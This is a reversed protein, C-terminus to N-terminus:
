TEITRGFILEIGNREAEEKLKELADKSVNGAALFAYKVKRGFARQVLDIRKTVKKIEDIAKEESEVYTTVEGVVLPDENFINIEEEEKEHTIKRRGLRIKEKPCGREELIIEMFAMTYDELTRGVARGFSKVEARIGRMENRINRVEEWLKNQGERLSRVEEWLKNQNEWLKNQGERLLRVEEWLKVQNEELRDLRKLIESLGLRGAVAYRFEEDRDLLELLLRKLEASEISM